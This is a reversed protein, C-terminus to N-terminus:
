ELNQLLFPNLMLLRVTINMIQSHNIFHENMPLAAQKKRLKSFSNVIIQKHYHLMISKSQHIPTTLLISRRIQVQPPTSPQQYDTHATLLPIGLELWTKHFPWLATSCPARIKSRVSNSLETYIPKATAPIKRHSPSITDIELEADSNVQPEVLEQETNSLAQTGPLSGITNSTYWTPMFIAVSKVWIQQQESSNTQHSNSRSFLLILKVKISKWNWYKRLHFGSPRRKIDVITTKWRWQPRGGGNHDEVKM